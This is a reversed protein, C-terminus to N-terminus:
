LIGKLNHKTLLQSSDPAFAMMPYLNRTWIKTYQVFFIRENGFYRPIM